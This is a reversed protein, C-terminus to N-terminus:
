KNSHWYGNYFISKSLRWIGLYRAREYTSFVMGYFTMNM